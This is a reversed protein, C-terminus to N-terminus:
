KSECTQKGEKAKIEKDRWKDFIPVAVTKVIEIEEDTFIEIGGTGILAFDNAKQKSIGAKLLAKYILKDREDPKYAPDPKPPVEVWYGSEDTATSEPGLSVEIGQAELKKIHKKQQRGLAPPTTSGQSLMQSGQNIVMYLGVQYLQTLMSFTAGGEKWTMSKYYTGKGM